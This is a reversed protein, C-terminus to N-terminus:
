HRSRSYSRDDRRDFDRRDDRRYNDRRDDRKYGNRRAGYGTGGSQERDNRNVPKFPQAGVMLRKEREQEEPRPNLIKISLRQAEFLEEKLDRSVPKLHMFNCMGGRTCQSM